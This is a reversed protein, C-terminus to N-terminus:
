NGLTALPVRGAQRAAPDLNVTSALFVALAKADVIVRTDEPVKPEMKM